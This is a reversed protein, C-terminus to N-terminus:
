LHIAYLVSLVATTAALHNQRKTMVAKPHLSINKAATWKLISKVASKRHLNHM